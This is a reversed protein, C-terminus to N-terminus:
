DLSECVIQDNTYIDLGAITRLAEMVVEKPELQTHAVLARAAALAM